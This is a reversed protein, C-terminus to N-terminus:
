SSGYSLLTPLISYFVLLSALATVQASQVFHLIRSVSIDVFDGKEYYLLTSAVTCTCFARNREKM